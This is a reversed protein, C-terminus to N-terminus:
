KKDVPIFYQVIGENEGCRDSFIRIPAYIPFLMRLNRADLYAEAKALISAYDCFPSRFTLCLASEVSTVYENILVDQAYPAWICNGKESHLVGDERTIRLCYQMYPMAAIWSVDIDRMKQAAQSDLKEMDYVEEWCPCYFLPPRLEIRSNAETISDTVLGAPNANRLQWEVMTLQEEIQRKRELLATHIECVPKHLMASSERLPFGMREYSKIAAIRTLTSTSYVRYGNQQRDAELYGHKELYHVGMNTIGILEAIDGTRFRNM